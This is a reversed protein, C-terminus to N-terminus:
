HNLFPARKLLVENGDPFQLGGFERTNYVLAIDRSYSRM